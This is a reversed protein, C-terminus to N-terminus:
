NTKQYAAMKHVICAWNQENNKPLLSYSSTQSSTSSLSFLYLSYSSTQSSTSSLSPLYLSLPAQKPPLPHSHSCISLSPAQKPPPPRFHSCISLSPPKRTELLCSVQIEELSIKGVVLVDEQIGHEFEDVYPKTTDEEAEYKLLSINNYNHKHQPQNFLSPPEHVGDLDTSGDDLAELYRYLDPLDEEDEAPETIVHLDKM